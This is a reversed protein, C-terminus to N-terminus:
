SCDLMKVYNAPIFGSRGDQEAKFWNKDDENNIIQLTMERVM